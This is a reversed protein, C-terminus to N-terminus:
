IMNVKNDIYMLQQRINRSLGTILSKYTVCTVHHPLVPLLIFTWVCLFQFICCNFLLRLWQSNIFIRFDDEM